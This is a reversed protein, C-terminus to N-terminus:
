RLLNPGYKKFLFICISLLIGVILCQELLALRNQAGIKVIRENNAKDIAKVYITDKLTQDRLLYPSDTVVYKGGFFGFLYWPSERVEYHDIGSRKDVTSFVIFYKGGFLTSDNGIFPTFDEPMENDNLTLDEVKNGSLDKSISFNFPIEKTSIKTGIGDNELIRVNNFNMQSNGDKKTKFVMGFLFMKSGSFGGTTIGSFSINGNKNNPKEIWFNITSNGDRVEKLELFEASFTITGEVANVSVDKTDLLVQVLFEEGQSFTDKNSDFSINAAFSVLPLFFILFLVLSFKKM